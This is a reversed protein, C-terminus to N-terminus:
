DGTEFARPVHTVQADQNRDGSFTIALVDFRFGTAGPPIEGASLYLRAARIVQARKRFDVAELATGTQEGTRSRVECFVCTGDADLAVIDLEGEPRRWNRTVIQLGQEELHRAALDEVRRGLAGRSSLRSRAAV